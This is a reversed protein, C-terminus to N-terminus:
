AAKPVKYKLAAKVDDATLRPYEEMIRAPSYGDEYLRQISVIPIRTGAVVPRGHQVGPIKVIKGFEAKGRSKMQEVDVGAQDIIAGLRYEEVYQGSVIERALGTDPEDFVVKRDWVRLKTDTWLDDKLHALIEAVKRLHQLPVGNRVRLMELTRLAVVDKFSYFKGYPGKGDAVYSPAFFGTKAWYRLRGISLQTLNSVQDESFAAIVNSIDLLVGGKQANNPRIGM